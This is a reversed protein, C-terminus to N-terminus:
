EEEKKKKYAEKTEKSKRIKKKKDRRQKLLKVGVLGLGTGPIINGAIETTLDFLNQNSFIKGVLSKDFLREVKRAEGTVADVEITRKKDKAADTFEFVWVPRYYLILKSIEVKETIVKDAHIPKYIEKILGNILFTARIDVPLIEVSEGSIDNISKIKKTKHELYKDLDKEKENLASQLITKTASEFCHDEAAFRLKSENENVEIEKKDIRVAIVEPEVNFSYETKRKYEFTGQGLIYWFPVYIKKNNTLEITDGKSKDLVNLMGSIIGFASVKIEEAKEKAQNFDYADEIVRIEEGEKLIAIDVM